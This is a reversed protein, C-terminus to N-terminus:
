FVILTNPSIRVNIRFMTWDIRCGPSPSPKWLFDRVHCQDFVDTTLRRFYFVFLFCLCVCFPERNVRCTYEKNLLFLLKPICYTQCAAVWLSVWSAWVCVRAIAQHFTLLRVLFFCHATNHSVKSCYQIRIILHVDYM